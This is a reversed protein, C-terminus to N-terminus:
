SRVQGSSSAHAQIAPMTSFFNRLVAPVYHATEKFRQWAGSLALKIGANYAAILVSLKDLMLDSLGQHIESLKLGFYGALGRLHTIAWRVSVRADFGRAKINHREVLRDCLDKSAKDKWCNVARRQDDRNLGEIGLATHPMIQMLGMAGVRSVAKPNFRSEQEAIAMILKCPANRAESEEIIAWIVAEDVGKARLQRECEASGEGLVARVPRPTPVSAAEAQISALLQSAPVVQKLSHPRAAATKPAAVVAPRPARNDFFRDLEPAAAPLYVTELALSRYHTQASSRELSLRAQRAEKWGRYRSLAARLQAATM